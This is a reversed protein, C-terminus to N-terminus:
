SRYVSQGRVYERKQVGEGHVYKIGKADLWRVLWTIDTENKSSYEECMKWLVKAVKDCSKVCLASLLEKADIMGYVSQQRTMEDEGYYRYITVEALNMWIEFHVFASHFENCEKCSQVLVRVMEKDIIEDADERLTKMAVAMPEEMSDEMSGPAGDPSYIHIFRFSGIVQKYLEIPIYLPLEEFTIGRHIVIIFLLSIYDEKSLWVLETDFCHARGEEECVFYPEFYCLIKEDDKYKEEVYKEVLGRLHQKFLINYEKITM